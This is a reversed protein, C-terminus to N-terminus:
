VRGVAAALLCPHASDRDLPDGACEAVHVRHAVGAERDFRSVHGAQDSRVAGALGRQEQHERRQEGGVGAGDPDGAVIGDGLRVRHPLADAPHGVREARPRRERHAVREGRACAHVAQRPVRCGGTGGLEDVQDVERRQGVLRGPHERAPLLLAQAEGAREHVVGVHQQEVLGRRAEVRGRAGRQPLEHAPEGPLALRQQHRAMDEGLELLHRVGRDVERAAHGRGGVGDLTGSAAGPLPPHAREVRPPEAVRESCRAEAADRADVVEPRHHRQRALRIGRLEERVEHADPHRDRREGGRDAVELVHEEVEIPGSRRGRCGAGVRGRREAVGARGVVREASPAAARDSSRGAVVSPSAPAHAAEEGSHPEDDREIQLLAYAAHGPVHEEAHEHQEDRDDRGQQHERRVRPVVAAPAHERRDHEEHQQEAREDGGGEAAVRDVALAIGARERRRLDRQDAGRLEHDALPDGRPQRREVKRAAESGNRTKATASPWTDAAVM